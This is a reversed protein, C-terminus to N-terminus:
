VACSRPQTSITEASSASTNPISTPPALLRVCLFHKELHNGSSPTPFFSSKFIAPLTMKRGGSDYTDGSNDGCGGDRSTSFFRTSTASLSTTLPCPPSPNATPTPSRLPRKWGKHNWSEIFFSSATCDMQLAQIVACCKPYGPPQKQHDSSSSVLSVPWEEWLTSLLFTVPSDPLLIQLSHSAAKPDSPTRGTSM